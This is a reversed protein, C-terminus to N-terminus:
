SRLECVFLKLGRPEHTATVSARQVSLGEGGANHRGGVWICTGDEAGVHGCYWSRESPALSVAAREAGGFAGMTRGKERTWKDLEHWGAGVWSGTLNM